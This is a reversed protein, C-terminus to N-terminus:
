YVFTDLAARGNISEHTAMTSTATVDSEIKIDAFTHAPSAIDPGIKVNVFTRAPQMVDPGTKGDVFTRMPM